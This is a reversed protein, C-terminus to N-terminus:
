KCGFPYQLEAALYDSGQRLVRRESPQGPYFMWCVGWLVVLAPWITWPMTLCPAKKRKMFRTDGQCKTGFSIDLTTNTDVFPVFVSWFQQTCDYLRRFIEDITGILISYEMWCEPGSRFARRCNEFLGRLRAERVPGWAHSNAVVHSPAAELIRDFLTALYPLHPDLQDNEAPGLVNFAERLIIHIIGYHKDDAAHSASQRAVDRGLYHMYQPSSAIDNAFSELPPIRFGPCFCPCRKLMHRVIAIRCDDGAEDWPTTGDNSSMFPDADLEVLLGALGPDKKQCAIHLATEGPSKQSGALVRDILQRVVDHPWVGRDILLRLVDPNPWPCAVQLPTWGGLNRVSLDAGADVLLKVIGLNDTQCAIHLPIKGTPDKVSLDAGADVLLKVIGLNDTRCALHLPTRGVHDKVSLDAGADVLLKIIGLNEKWCALQLPTQSSNGKVSLDAGADVLLKAIGLNNTLCADHLPTQSLNDKASINAGANLLLEAVNLHGNEVAIHLPTGSAIRTRNYPATWPLPLKESASDLRYTLCRPLTQPIWRQENLLTNNVDLQLLLNVITSHGYHCAERLLETQMIVTVPDEVANLIRQVSDIDGRRCSEALQYLQYEM